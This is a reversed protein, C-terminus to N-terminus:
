DITNEIIDQSSFDYICDCIYKKELSESNYGRDVDDISQLAKLVKQLHKSFARRELSTCPFNSFYEAVDELPDYSAM